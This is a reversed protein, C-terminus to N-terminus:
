NFRGNSDGLFKYIIIGPKNDIYELFDEDVVKRYKKKSSAHRFRLDDDNIILFGVHSVDLGQSNSLIGVVYVKDKLKTYDRKNIDEYYVLKNKLPIGKLYKENIDKKNLIKNIKKDNSIRELNNNDAWDTFFHNRNYFSIINDEYRLSIVNSKFDKQSNSIALAYVYEVYTFCDLNDLDITLKEDDTASGILVNEKYNKDLLLTSYFVLKEHIDLNQHKIILNDIQDFNLSFSTLTLFFFLISALHLKKEKILKM